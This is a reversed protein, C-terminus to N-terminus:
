FYKLNGCFMKKNVMNFYFDVDPDKMPVVEFKRWLLISQAMNWLFRDHPQTSSTLYTFLNGPVSVSPSDFYIVSLPYDSFKMSNEGWTLYFFELLLVKDKRTGPMQLVQVFEIEEDMIFDYEKQKNRAKADRAGFRYVFCILM